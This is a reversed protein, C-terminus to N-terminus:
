DVTNIGRIWSFGVNFSIPIIQRIYQDVFQALQSIQSKPVFVVDYPRVLFPKGGGADTATQELDITVFLPPKGPNERLVVVQRVDASNKLGGAALIARMVTLQSFSEITGPANVEGGVYIKQGAFERVVVTIELSRQHPAFLEYLARRLEEPTRGAAQVDGVLQLTLKGDPRVRVRDSLRDNYYFKIDLEDGPAIRYPEAAAPETAAQSTLAKGETQLSPGFPQPVTCGTMVAALVSPLLAAAITSAVARLSRWWRAALRGHPARKPALGADRERGGLLGPRASDDSRRISANEDM